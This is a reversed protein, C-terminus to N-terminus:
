SGFPRPSRKFACFDGNVQVTRSFTICWKTKQIFFHLSVRKQIFYPCINEV